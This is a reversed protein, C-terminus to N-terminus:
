EDLVKRAHLEHGACAVSLLSVGSSECNVHVTSFKLRVLRQQTYEAKRERGGETYQRWLRATQAVGLLWVCVCPHARM